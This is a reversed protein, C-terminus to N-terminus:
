KKEMGETPKATKGTACCFASDDGCMKCSHKLETHAGKQVGTVTLESNCGACTHTGILEKPQGNEMLMQAGKVGQKVRTVWVTKCKSCVMAMTDNDKLANADEVTTVPKNLMMLHEAGKMPKMEDQAQAVSPLWAAMALAFAVAMSTTMKNTKM